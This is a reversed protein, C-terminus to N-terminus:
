PIMGYRGVITDHGCGTVRVDLDIEGEQEVLRRVGELGPQAPRQGVEPQGHALVAQQHLRALGLAGLGLHGLEGAEVLRM